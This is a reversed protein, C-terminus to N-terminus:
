GQGSPSAERGGRPWASGPRNSVYTNYYVIGKLSGQAVRWSESVPGTVAGDAIKTVQVSVTDAGGASTTLGKWVAPPLDIRAPSSAGFFGKYEFDGFAIKVYFADAAGGGFQLNPASLGRPFITKDYPYLWRFGADASGATELKGQDEPTVNGPNDLIKVRVTVTTSAGLNGSRATVKAKGAVFGQSAFVGDKGITGVTVDDLFWEVAAPKSGDTLKVSFPLSSPTGKHAEVSLPM